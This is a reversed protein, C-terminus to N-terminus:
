GVGVKPGSTIFFSDHVGLLFPLGPKHCRLLVEHQLHQLRYPLLVPLSTMRLSATVFTALFSPGASKLCQQDSRFPRTSARCAPSPQLNCKQHLASAAKYPSPISGHFESSSSSSYPSTSISTHISHNLSVSAASECGTRGHASSFAQM